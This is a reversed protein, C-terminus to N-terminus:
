TYTERAEPQHLQASDYKNLFDSIVTAARTLPSFDFKWNM